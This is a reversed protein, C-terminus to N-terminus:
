ARVKQELEERSFQKPNLVYITGQLTSLLHLYYKPIGNKSIQCVKFGTDEELDLEKVEYGQESLQQQVDSYVSRWQSNGSKWCGEVEDCPQTNPLRALDVVLDGPKVPPASPRPKPSRSSSPSDPSSKSAPALESRQQASQKSSAPNTPKDTPTERQASQQKPQTAVPLARSTKSVLKNAVPKADQPRELKTQKPLRVVRVTAQEKSESTENTPFPLFLVLGHLALSTLLLPRILKRVLVFRTKM